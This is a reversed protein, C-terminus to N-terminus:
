IPEVIGASRELGHGSRWGTEDEGCGRSRKRGDGVEYRRWLLRARFRRTSRPTITDGDSGMRHDRWTLAVSGDFAILTDNGAGGDVQSYGLTVVLDSGNGANVTSYGSSRVEDNGDGADAVTLLSKYAAM